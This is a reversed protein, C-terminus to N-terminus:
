RRRLSAASFLVAVGVDSDDALGEGLFLGSWFAAVTLAFHEPDDNLRIRAGTHVQTVVDVPGMGFPFDLALGAVPSVKKYPDYGLGITGGLTWGQEDAKGNDFWASGARAGYNWWFGSKKVDGFNIGVALRQFDAGISLDANFEDLIGPTGMGPLGPEEAFARPSAAGALTLLVLAVTMFTRSRYPM